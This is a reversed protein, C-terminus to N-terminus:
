LISPIVELGMAVLEIKPLDLDDVTAGFRLEDHRVGDKQRYGRLTGELRMGLRELIRASAANGALCGAELRFADMRHIAFAQLFRGLRTGVGRGWAEKRLQFGIEFGGPSGAVPLIAGQGLFEGGSGERADEVAFVSDGADLLPGFYTAIAEAPLPTFWLWRGVHPDSLMDTIAPLDGRDSFRYRETDFIWTM